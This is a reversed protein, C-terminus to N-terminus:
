SMGMLICWPPPMVHQVMRIGGLLVANPLLIHSLHTDQTEEGESLRMLLMRERWVERPAEGGSGGQRRVDQGAWGERVRARPVM